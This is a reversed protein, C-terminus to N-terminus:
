PFKTGKIQQYLFLARREMFAVTYFLARSNDSIHGLLTSSQRWSVQQVGRLGEEVWKNFYALGPYFCMKVGDENLIIIPLTFM